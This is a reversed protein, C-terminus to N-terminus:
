IFISKIIGFDNNDICRTIHPKTTYPKDAKYYGIVIHRITNGSVGLLNGIGTYTPAKNHEECYSVYSSTKDILVGTDIM